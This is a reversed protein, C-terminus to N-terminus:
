DMLIQFILHETTIRLVYIDTILMVSNSLGFESNQIEIM